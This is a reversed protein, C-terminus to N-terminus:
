IGGQVAPFLPDSLPQYLWHRMDQMIMSLIVPGSLSVIEKPDKKSKNIFVSM